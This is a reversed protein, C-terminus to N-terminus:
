WVNDKPIGFVDVVIAQIGFYCASFLALIGGVFMTLEPTLQTGGPTFLLLVLPLIIASLKLIQVIRYSLKIQAKKTVRKKHPLRPAVVRATQHSIRAGTKGVTKPLRIVAYTAMVLILATIVLMIITIVPTFIGFEIPSSEAPQRVEPSLYFFSAERSLLPYGVIILTWMWQILLSGYGLTGFLNATTLFGNRKAMHKHYCVTAM